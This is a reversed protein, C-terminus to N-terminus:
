CSRPAGRFSREGRELARPDVVHVSLGVGCLALLAVGLFAHVAGAVLEGSIPQQFLGFVFVAAVYVSSLLIWLVAKQLLMSVLSSPLEFLLWLSTGEMTLASPSAMLSMVGIVFAVLPLHQASGILLRADFTIVTVALALLQVLPLLVAVYWMAKDRLLQTLDKTFVGSRASWLPLSTHPLVGRQGVRSAQGPTGGKAWLLALLAYGLGLLIGSQAICLTLRGLLAQPEGNLAFIVGVVGETPLWPLNRLATSLGPHAPVTMMLGIGLLALVARIGQHVQAPLRGLAHDVMVSGLSVPLALAFFLLAAVLPASWFLGQQHVLGVVLPYVLWWGWANFCAREFVEIAYIAPASIPVMLLWEIDRAARASMRNAWSSDLCLAAFCLLALQASAASAFEHPRLRLTLLTSFLETMGLATALMLGISTVLAKWLWGLHGRESAASRRSAPDHSSAWGFSRGMRQLRLQLILACARVVSIPRSERPVVCPRAGSTVQNTM